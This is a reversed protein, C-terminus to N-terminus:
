RRSLWEESRGSVARIAVSQHPPQRVQCQRSARFARPGIRLGQLDEELVLAAISTGEPAATMTSVHAPGDRRIFLHVQAVLPTVMVASTQPRGQDEHRQGAQKDLPLAPMGPPACSTARPASTGQRM